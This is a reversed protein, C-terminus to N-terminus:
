GILTMEEQLLWHWDTNLNGNPMALKQSIRGQIFLKRFAPFTRIRRVYHWELFGGADPSKEVIEVMEAYIIDFEPVRKRTCLQQALNLFEDRFKEEIEHKHEHM